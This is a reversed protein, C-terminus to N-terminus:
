HQIFKLMRKLFRFYYDINQTNYVWVCYEKETEIGTQRAAIEPYLLVPVSENEYFHDFHEVATEMLSGTLHRDNVVFLTICNTLDSLNLGLDAVNIMFVAQLQDCHRLAYLHRDRKLGIKAYTQTLDSCDTHEPNLQFADLMLGGSLNEYVNRLDYLDEKTVPTIQWNDPLEPPPGKKRLHHFYAFTDVSCIKPLRINRAVGGFVKVPFKNNPRYYTFVYEMKMSALRHSENIFRGMQNLVILGGKNGSRRIAAHHHIMWSSAFFRVTALHALIRGNKQYIFHSAMGPSAHYLKAYTAKIREKNAQLHEYKEPYIFGTEFFFEWLAEMDVRNCVYAHADTAKHMLALLRMHDEVSIDLIALGSRVLPKENAQYRNCFVVQAMCRLCSRDSFVLELAPIILGPMLVSAQEEEEVSFGTGSLDNIKLTITKEFLPHEFVMDPPPTLQHRTNRFERPPYRRIREAIAEVIFHRVSMGQDHRVIRCNGTYLTKGEKAFVITVPDNSEIWGFTQPATTSVGIRFRAAGYDILQGCYSAGNQLLYAAIGTCQHRHISRHGIECCTQPLLLTIQAEDIQKVEARVELLHGGNSVHLYEFQFDDIFRTFTFSEAWRCVLQVEQCALPYAKIKLNRAYTRHKFVVTVTRDQFNLNNLKNILQTRNIEREAASSKQDRDTTESQSIRAKEELSVETVNSIALPQRTLQEM